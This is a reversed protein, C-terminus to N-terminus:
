TPFGSTDAWSMNSPAELHLVPILSPIGFDSVNRRTAPWTTGASSLARMSSHLTSIPHLPFRGLSAPFQSDYITLLAQFLGVEAILGDDAPRRRSLRDWATFFGTRLPLLSAPPHLQPRLSLEPVRM